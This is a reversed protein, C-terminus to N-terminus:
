TQKRRTRRLSTVGPDAPPPEVPPVVVPEPPTDAPPPDIPVDIPLPNDIPPTTTATPPTTTATPPEEPVEIVEEENDAEEEESEPEPEEEVEEEVPAVPTTLRHRSLWEAVATVGDAWSPYTRTSTGTNGVNGPNLTTIALGATGYRSDQEMIAMMLRVDVNYQQAASLIMAGTVPSGTAESAIYADIAEASIMPGITSLIEAVKQEHLPDTAYSTIDYLSLPELSGDTVITPALTMAEVLNTNIAGVTISADLLLRLKYLTDNVGAIETEIATITALDGIMFAQAKSNNLVIMKNELLQILYEVNM